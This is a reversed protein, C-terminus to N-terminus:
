EPWTFPKTIPLGDEITSGAMTGARAQICVFYLDETSSNKWARAGDPSVRIVTGPEIPIIEGDVQFQGRGGTFIYLEENKQHVHLFPMGKGAPLRNLSVEMGTLGVLDKLFIKGKASRPLRPHNFSYRGLEHAPGTQVASFNRGQQPLLENSNM